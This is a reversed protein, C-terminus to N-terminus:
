IVTIKDEYVYIIQTELFKTVLNEKTPYTHGHFLYKPKQIKLYETLAQFGQHALETPEDNIGFPPCHTLMVDVHPFNKLLDTAQSQTYLKFEPSEKYKVCGEFGGFILGNYEFTILHMNKIGLTEFYMGSDHNGYVGIKPINTVYELERISFLDLDGLTCILDISNKQLISSISEKPPRDAIVLINM